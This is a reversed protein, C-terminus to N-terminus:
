RNAGGTPSSDAFVRVMREADFYQDGRKMARPLHGCVTFGFREYLARARTNHTFVTLFVVDFMTRAEALSRELLASGVGRGRMARDVLLGLEGLHADEATKAPGMRGVTCNGVARGGVEAVMWVLDGDRMRQHQREFWTAEDEPSPRVTFLPIGVPDGSDREEYLELYTARLDDVDDPRFPRVVIPEM